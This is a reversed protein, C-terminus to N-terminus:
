KTLKFSGLYADADKGAVFEKSGFVALMHVRSDRITFFGRM